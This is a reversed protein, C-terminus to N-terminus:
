RLTPRERMPAAVIDPWRRGDGPPFALRIRVLAPLSREAWTDRWGAAPADPGSGPRPWYALNLRAVGRLLEAEEAPPPPGLRVAGLRPTWRLVLRGAGDVLLAVDARRTVEAAAAPLEATFALRDPGGEILPDQNPGGPDMGEVLRRLTRDTADLEARADILRSQSEWARLGFRSGAALGAMVLGLVALAALVELLTFGGEGGTGDSGASDRGSVIASVAASM